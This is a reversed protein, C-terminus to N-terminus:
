WRFVPERAAEEHAAEAAAEREAKGMFRVPVAGSKPVVVEAELDAKPVPDRHLEPHYQCPSSLREAWDLCFGCVGLVEYTYQRGPGIVLLKYYDPGKSEYTASGDDLRYLLRYERAPQVAPRTVAEVVTM